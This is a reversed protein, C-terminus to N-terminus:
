VEVWQMVTVAKREVLKPEVEKDYQFAQEDQSETAGKSWEFLYHKNTPIHQYVGEYRVSWRSHGNTNPGDVCKWDEHCDFVVDRAEDPTLKM